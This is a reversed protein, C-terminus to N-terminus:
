PATLTVRFETADIRVYLGHYITDWRFSISHGGTFLAPTWNDPIGTKQVVNAGLTSFEGFAASVEPASIGVSSHFEGDTAWRSAGRDYFIGSRRVSASDGSVPDLEDYYRLGGPSTPSHVELRYTRSVPRSPLLSTSDFTFAYLALNAAVGGSLRFGSRNNRPDFAVAQNWVGSGPTVTGSFQIDGTRFGAPLVETRLLGSGVDIKLAYIDSTNLRDAGVTGRVLMNGTIYTGVVLWPPNNGPSYFRSEAFTGALNALSVVDNPIPTLGQATIANLAEADNWSTGSISAFFNRSGRTGSAGTKVKGVSFVKELTQIGECNVQVVCTASFKGTTISNAYVTDSDYKVFLGDTQLGLSVSFQGLGPGSAVPTLQTTGRYARIDTVAKAPPPGLEGAYATDNADFGVTHAENTLVAAYPSQGDVGDQLKTITVEDYVPGGTSWSIGCRYTRSTEAFSSPTVNLASTSSGALFWTASLPAWYQWTYTQATANNLAASLTISAPTYSTGGNTSKFVLDTASVTASV